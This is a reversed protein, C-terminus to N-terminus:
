RHGDPLELHRRHEVRGRAAGHALFSSLPAPTQSAQWFGTGAGRRSNCPKCTARLNDLHHTGGRSRPIIHDVATAPRGCGVTVQCEYADRELVRLRIRQWEATKVSSGRGM